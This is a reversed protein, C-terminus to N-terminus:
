RIIALMEMFLPDRLTRLTAIYSIIAILITYLFYIGFQECLIIMIAMITNAIFVKGLKPIISFTFFQKLRHWSIGLIILQAAVTALAAGVAGYRPILYLNLLINFVVGIITAVIFRKQLNKTYIINTLIINPFVALVSVMLVGLVPGGTQYASGFILLMIKASFIFGGLAIPLGIMIVLLMIKEFIRTSAEVDSENKSMIPFISIGIFVPIIALFQVLRQGAAYLGVAVAGQMQGLMISDISFLIASLSLAIFPLTFNFIVKFTKKSFKWNIKALEKRLTSLMFVNAIISGIAYAIALSLPDAKKILLAIGLVTIISNMLIKSFAEREMKEFSRNVSFVFERLSDSFALLSLVIVLKMELAITGFYPVCLVAVILSATLLVLKFFLSASLYQYRDTNNNSLERTIFTNIGIDGFVFFLSVFALAYSFIGWGEVGLTRTAFVVVILKLIRGIIDGFFLWFTNKAFTQRTNTNKFLFNKIKEM